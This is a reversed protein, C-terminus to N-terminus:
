LDLARQTVSTQIFYTREDSPEGPVPENRLAEIQITVTPQEENNSGALPLLAETGTVFFRASQIYIDSSTFPEAQTGVQRFIQGDEYFYMIKQDSGTISDGAETFVIGENGNPCDVLQDRQDIDTGRISNDVCEYDTGTRIERTMSDLAFSLNTMIGQEDQLEDNLGVMMLLAGIAVTVVVSFLTLSVIMEILTFGAQPQTRIVQYRSITHM